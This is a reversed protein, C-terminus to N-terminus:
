GEIVKKVKFFGEEHEPANKLISEAPSWRFTKDERLAPTVAFPHATPPVGAADTENLKEIYGLIKGLQETLNEKEKDTLSLRALRAVHEVDKKTLAM